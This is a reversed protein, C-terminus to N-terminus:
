YRIIDVNYRTKPYMGCISGILHAESQKINYEAIAYALAKNYVKIRAVTRDYNDTKVTEKKVEEKRTARNKFWKFM